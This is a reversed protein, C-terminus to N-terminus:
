KSIIKANLNSYHIVETFDSIDGLNLYYPSPLTQFNSSFIYRFEAEESYESTKYFGKKEQSVEGHFTKSDIYEVLGSRCNLKLETCAEKIRDNFCRLDYIVFCYEGFKKMREPFIINSEASLHVNSGEHISYLCLVRFNDQYRLTAFDTLGTESSLTHKGLLSHTIQINLQDAQWLADFSENSDFFIKRSNLSDRYFNLESLRLRGKVLDELHEKKGFKLLSFIKGM